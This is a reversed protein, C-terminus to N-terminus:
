PNSAGRHKVLRGSEVVLDANKLDIETAIRGGVGTRDKVVRGDVVALTADALLGVGGYPRPDSPAPEPQGRGIAKMKANWDLSRMLRGLEHFLAGAKKM